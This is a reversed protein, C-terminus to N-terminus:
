DGTILALEMTFTIAVWSRCLLNFPSSPNLGFSLFHESCYIALVIINKLSTKQIVFMWVCVFLLFFNFGSENRAVHKLFFFFFFFDLGIQVPLVGCSHEFFFQTGAQSVWNKSTMIRRRLFSLKIIIVSTSIHLNRNSVILFFFFFFSSNIAPQKNKNSLFNKM